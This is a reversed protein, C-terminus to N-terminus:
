PRFPECSLRVDAVSQPEVGEPLEFPEDESGHSGGGTVERRDLEIMEGDGTEAVFTCVSAGISDGDPWEVEHSVLLRDGESRFATVMGVHAGDPDDIRPGCTLEVHGPVSDIDFTALNRYDFGARLTFFPSASDDESIESGSTDFATWRCERAGPYDDSGWGYRYEVKFLTPSDAGYVPATYELQLDIARYGNSEVAGLPGGDAWRYVACRRGASVLQERSDVEWAWYSNGDRSAEGSTPDARGGGGGPLPYYEVPRFDFREGASNSAEFSCEVYADSPVPIPGTWLSWGVVLRVGDLPGGFTVAADDYHAPEQDVPATRGILARREDESAAGVVEVVEFSDGRRAFVVMTEDGSRRCNEDGTYPAGDSPIRCELTEFEATWGEPTEEIGLYDWTKGAPDILGAEAVARIVFSAARDTESPELEAGALAPFARSPGVAGNIKETKGLPTAGAGWVLAAVVGLSAITMLTSRRRRVQRGRRKIKSIDPSPAEWRAGARRLEGKIDTNM